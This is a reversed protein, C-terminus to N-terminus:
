RMGGSFKQKEAILDRYAYAMLDRVLEILGAMPGSGFPNGHARINRIDALSPEFPRRKGDEDIIEGTLFPIVRLGCHKALPIKDDTLAEKKVMIKLLDAFVVWGARENEELTCERGESKARQAARAQRKAKEEGLYRDRLAHELASLAAMEAAVMLDSDIWSLVAIKLARDFADAMNSPVGSPLQFAFFFNRWQDFTSFPIFGGVDGPRPWPLMYQGPSRAAMLASVELFDKTLAM